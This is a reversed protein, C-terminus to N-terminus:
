FRMGGPKGFPPIQGHNMIYPLASDPAVKATHQLQYQWKGKGSPAAAGPKNPQMIWVGEPQALFARQLPMISAAVQKQINLQDCGYGSFSWPNFDVPLVDKGSISDYTPVLFITQRDIYSQPIDPTTNSYRGFYIRIGLRPSSCNRSAAASKIDNIYSELQDVSYWVAQADNQMMKQLEEKSWRTGSVANSDGLYYRIDKNRDAYHRALNGAEGAPIGYYMDRASEGNQGSPKSGPKKVSWRAKATRDNVLSFIAIFTLTICSLIIKRKM